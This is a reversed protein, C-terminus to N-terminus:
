PAARLEREAQLWDSVADGPEGNRAEFIEFARVAIATESV